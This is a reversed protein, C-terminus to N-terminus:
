FGGSQFGLLVRNNTGDNIPIRKNAGDVVVNGDGIYLVQQGPHSLMPHFESDTVGFTAWDEACDSAWDNNNADSVAIRHLRSETAIYIYGEHEIMGLINAEGAAPTITHVLRWTGTSTREWIKGSTSSGFYQSGNSSAIGVKCFETVTDTSDKSLKQAVKLIGPASHPDWGVMRYLSNKIGSWKSDAIGGFNFNEIPIPQEM